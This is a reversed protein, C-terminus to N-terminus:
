FLSEVIITKKYNGYTLDFQGSFGADWYITIERPDFDDIKYKNALHMIDGTCDEREHPNILKHRLTKCPCGDCSPPLIGYKSKYYKYQQKILKYFNMKAGTFYM